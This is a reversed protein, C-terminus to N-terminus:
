FGRSSSDACDFHVQSRSSKGRVQRHTSLFMVQRVAAANGLEGVDPAQVVVEGPDVVQQVPHRGLVDRPALDQVDQVAKV